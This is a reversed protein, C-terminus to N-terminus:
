KRNINGVSGERIMRALDMDDKRLTIRKAHLACANADRFIGILRAELAEQLAFLARQEWPRVRYKKRKAYDLNKDKFVVKYGYERKSELTNMKKTVSRAIERVVDAFALRHIIHPSRDQYHLIEKMLKRNKTLPYHQVHRPTHKSRSSKARRVMGTTRGYGGHIKPSPSYSRSMIQESM